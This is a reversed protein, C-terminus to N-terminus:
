SSNCLKEEANFFFIIIAKKRVWVASRQSHFSRVPLFDQTIKNKKYKTIEGKPTANDMDIKGKM